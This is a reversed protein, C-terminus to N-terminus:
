TIRRQIDHVVEQKIFQDVDEMTKLETKNERLDTIYIVWQEPRMRRMQMIRGMNPFMTKLLRTIILSEPGNM